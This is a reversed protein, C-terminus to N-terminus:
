VIALWYATRTTGGPPASADVTRGRIAFTSNGVADTSIVLAPSGAPQDTGTVIAIPTAGLGHTITTDASFAAAGGFTITAAGVAIRRAATGVFLVGAPIKGDGTLALGLGGTPDAAVGLGSEALKKLPQAFQEVAV